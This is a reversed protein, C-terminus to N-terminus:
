SSYALLPCLSMVERDVGTRPNIMLYHFCAIIEDDDDDDNKIEKKLISM